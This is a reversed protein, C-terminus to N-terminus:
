HHSKRALEDLALLCPGGHREIARILLNIRYGAQTDAELEPAFGGAPRGTGDATAIGAQEFALTLYTAVEAPGDEEDLALWAVPTGDERLRHCCHGLLATKGFGGPAQLLTLRRKMPACRRELDPRDVYGAVLDPIQVKHTLLWPTTSGPISTGSNNPAPQPPTKKGDTTVKKRAQM